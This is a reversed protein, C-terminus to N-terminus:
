QGGEKKPYIKIKAEERFNKFWDNYGEYQKRKKVKAYYTNKVKAYDQEGAPRTKIIKFVAYGKYILSPQYFEGEKMKIMNYAADRPFKWIDMLFVLSVFGPQRFNNPNKTKQEDWLKPNNKLKQYFDDANEKTDFQTLEISLTNNEDLFAQHAESESVQPQISDIFQQRMKEIQLLQRIQNEFLEVPEGTKDKVWKAFAAKNTKYDFDVKYEALLSLIERNVEEETVVVEKRFAEYSLLLLNWIYDEREKVTKPAPGM